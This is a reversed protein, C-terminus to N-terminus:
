TRPSSRKAPVARARRGPSPVSASGETGTGRPPVYGATGPPECVLSQPVDEYRAFGTKHGSPVDGCLPLLAREYSSSRVQDQWSRTLRENAAHAACVPREFFSCRPHGTPAPYRPVRARRRREGAHSGGRHLRAQRRDSSATSGRSCGKPPGRVPKPRASVVALHRWSPRRRSWESPPMAAADPPRQQTKTPEAPCTVAGSSPM